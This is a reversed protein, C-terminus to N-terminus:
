QAGGHVDELDRRARLLEVRQRLVEQRLVLAVSQWSAGGDLRGDLAAYMAYDVSDHPTRAPPVVPRHEVDTRHDAALEVAGGNPDVRVATLWACTDGITLLVPAQGTLDPGALAGDVADALAALGIGARPAPPGAPARRPDGADLLEDVKAGAILPDAHGGGGRRRLDAVHDLLPTVDRYTPASM